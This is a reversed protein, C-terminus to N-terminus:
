DGEPISKWYKIHGCIYNQMLNQQLKEKNQVLHGDSNEWSLQSLKEYYRHRPVMYISRQLWCLKNHCFVCPLQPLVHHEHLCYTVAPNNLSNPYGNRFFSWSHYKTNSIVSERGCSRKKRDELHIVTKKGPTLDVKERPHLTRGWHILFSGNREM